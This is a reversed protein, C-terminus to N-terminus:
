RAQTISDFLKVLYFGLFMSIVFSMSYFNLLALSSIAPGPCLGALGWGVGFLISGLILRQDINKNYSYDFKKELLPKEKNKIIHFTPLSVILAGVMVFALSPDWNGFIDLFGLVKQPNIMESIVLGIGFIIGSLLSILKNM